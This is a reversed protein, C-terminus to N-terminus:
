CLTRALRAIEEPAKGIARHALEADTEPTALPTLAAAQDLTLAGTSLAADVAPLARRARPVETFWAAQSSFGARKWDGRDEAGRLLVTERQNDVARRAAIEGLERWCSASERELAHAVTGQLVAFM